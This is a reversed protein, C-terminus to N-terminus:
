QGGGGGGGAFLKTISCYYFCVHSASTSRIGSLRAIWSELTRCPMTRAPRPRRHAPSPNSFQIVKLNSKSSQIGDSARDARALSHSESLRVRLTDFDRFDRHSHTHQKNTSSETTQPPPNKQGNQSRIQASYSRFPTKPPSSSPPPTLLPGPAALVM